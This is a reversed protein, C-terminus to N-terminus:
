SKLKDQCLRCTVIAPANTVFVGRKNTSVDTERVLAKGCLTEHEDHDFHVTDSDRHVLNNSNWIWPVKEAVRAIAHSRKHDPRNNLQVPAPESDPKCGYVKRFTVFRKKM